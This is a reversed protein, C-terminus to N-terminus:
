RTLTTSGTPLHVFKYVVRTGRISRPESIKSSEKHNSEIFILTLFVILNVARFCFVSVGIVLIFTCRQFSRRQIEILSLLLLLM